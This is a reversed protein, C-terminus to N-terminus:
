EEMPDVHRLARKLKKRTDRSQGSLLYAEKYSRVADDYKMLHMYADGVIVWGEVKPETKLKEEIRKIHADIEESETMNAAPKALTPAPTAKPPTSADKVTRTKVVPEVPKDTVATESSDCASLVAVSLLITTMIRATLFNM